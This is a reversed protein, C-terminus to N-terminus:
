APPSCCTAAPSANWFASRPTSRPSSWGHGGPRSGDAAPLRDCGKGLQGRVLLEGAGTDRDACGRRLNLVEGPRMGSLYAIVTFAAASLLRLLTPLETVTIPQDRWPRGDVRANISGLFSDRAIGLGSETIMRRLDPRGLAAPHLHLLRALHSWNVAPEGAGPRGPIAAGARRAQGVFARVRGAPGLHAYAAQSPHTGADLRHYEAHAAIIDEGIREVMTLSWALLTEMTAVSIRPTKNTQDPLRGVLRSGGAGDWPDPALQAPQPLHARYSWLTRVAALLNAQRDTSCTLAAVHRRYANLDDATVDCLQARGRERLWRAFVRLDRVWLAITTVAPREGRRAVAPDVPYPHDLAALAFAKFAAALPHPFRDWCLTAAVAHVDPHASQLHWTADAFRPLGAPDTGPRLPRARLVPTDPAPWADHDPRPAGPSLAQAPMQAAAPAAATM